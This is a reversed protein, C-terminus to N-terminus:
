PLMACDHEKEACTDVDHAHHMWMLHNGSYALGTFRLLENWSLRLELLAASSQAYLRCRKRSASAREAYRQLPQAHAELCFLSCVKFFVKGIISQRQNQSVAFRKM